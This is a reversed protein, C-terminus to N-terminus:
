LFHQMNKFLCWGCAVNDKRCCLSQFSFHSRYGEAITPHGLFPNLLSLFTKKPPINRGCVSAPASGPLVFGVWRKKKEEETCKWNVSLPPAKREEEGNKCMCFDM